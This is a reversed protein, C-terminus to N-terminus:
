ADIKRVRWALVKGDEIWRGYMHDACYMWWQMRRIGRLVAAVTRNPCEPPRGHRCIRTATETPGIVRWYAPDEEKVYWEFGPSPDWDPPNPRTAM